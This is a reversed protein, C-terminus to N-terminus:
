PLFNKQNEWNNLQTEVGFCENSVPTINWYTLLQKRNIITTQADVDAKIHFVM